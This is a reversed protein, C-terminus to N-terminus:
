LNRLQLARVMAQAATPCEVIEKPLSYILLKTSWTRYHDPDYRDIMHEMEM